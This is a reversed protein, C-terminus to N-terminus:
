FNRHALARLMVRVSQAADRLTKQVQGPASRAYHGRYVGAGCAVLTLLALLRAAAVPWRRRRPERRAHPRASPLTQQVACEPTQRLAHTFAEANPWRRTPRKELARWIVWELEASIGADPAAKRPPLPLDDIQMRMVALPSEALFPLRGVVMEYLIMGVSYLDSREDTPGGAAQEPAMYEPTGLTYGDNTLRAPGGHGRGIKALGFDLIKVFDGESDDLLLINDPKLDRHVVRSAHAAAVGALIQQAIAVARAPPLRQRELLEGLLRGDHFDMVFYPLGSSVGTELLGIVHPHNIRLMAAGELHFRGVLDAHLGLAEHLFKVAVRRGTGVEHGRYVVGMGGVGWLQDLRYRGALFMGTRAHAVGEAEITSQM